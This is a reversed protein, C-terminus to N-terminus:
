YLVENSDTLYVDLIISDKAMIRFNKIVITRKGIYSIEIDLKSDREPKIVTEKISDNEIKPKFVIDNVTVYAPIASRKNKTDFDYCKIVLSPFGYKNKAQYTNISINSNLDRYASCSILLIYFLLFLFRMIVPTLCKTNVM